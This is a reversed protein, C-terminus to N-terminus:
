GNRVLSGVERLTKEQDHHCIGLVDKMCSDRTCEGVTFMKPLTFADNIPDAHFNFRSLQLTVYESRWREADLAQSSALASSWYLHPHTNHFDNQRHAEEQQAEQRLEEQRREEERLRELSARANGSPFM